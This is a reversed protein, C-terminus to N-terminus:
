NAHIKEKIQSLFRVVGITALGEIAGFVLIHSGVIAPITVSLDFPFYIAKGGENFLMPQIGLLVAIVVSALVMGAYGAIFLNISNPLKNKFMEYFYYSGFAGIFGMAFSNAGLALIGGDGFIVAQFFLAISICFFAVWPGLLIALAGMGVAHGSTGGPIPVNIMMVMFAFATMSSLFTVASDDNDINQKAKKFGYWWLPVSIALMVISTSPSIFGDPIHM